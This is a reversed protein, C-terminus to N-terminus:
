RKTGKPYRFNWYFNSGIHAVRNAHEINKSSEIAGLCLAMEQMVKDVEENSAVHFVGVCGYNPSHCGALMVVALLCVLLNRRLIENVKDTDRKRVADVAEAAAKDKAAEERKVVQKESFFWSAWVSVAEVLKTLWSM